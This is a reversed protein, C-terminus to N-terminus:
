PEDAPRTALYISPLILAGGVFHYWQPTEGFLWWATAAGYVPGLYMVISARTVGLDRLIISYGMYALVGPVLAALAILGFGHLTFPPSVSTLREFITFPILVIVGGATICAVRQFTGLASPWRQQLVSYAVMAAAAAAVWLDGISFQVDLLNAPHGKAMVFMVGLFAVAMGVRQLVTTSEGLTLRGVIAVGIPAVAYILGMNVVPTTEAAIYVFAGCIWMGLAGLVIMQRWEGRWLPFQRRLDGFVWPLMVALALAWRGLAMTNPPVVGVTARAILYNSSWLAPTIWLLALALRPAPAETRAPTM